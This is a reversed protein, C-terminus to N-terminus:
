PEITISVSHGHQHEPQLGIRVTLIGTHYSASAYQTNTGLPLAVHRAFSGYHFETERSQRPEDRREARVSLIGAEVSVSLDDALDIGPIELRIM